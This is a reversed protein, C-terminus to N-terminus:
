AAAGGTQGFPVAYLCEDVGYERVLTLIQSRAPVRVPYIYNELRDFHARLAPSIWHKRLSIRSPM